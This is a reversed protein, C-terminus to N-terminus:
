KFFRNTYIINISKKAMFHFDFYWFNITQELVFMVKALCLTKVDFIYIFDGSKRCFFFVYLICPASTLRIFSLKKSGNFDISEIFQLM